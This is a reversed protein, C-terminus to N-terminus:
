SGSPIAEFPSSIISCESIASSTQALNTGNLQDLAKVAQKKHNCSLHSYRLTMEINKHGLLEKVTLLDVGSMVLQSAFTHRLEHFRFDNIGAKTLATHFSKKIDVFPKGKFSSFVYPSEPNRKIRILIGRVTENFPIERKENNKTRLLHILGNNWDIDHWKLNFIEGKRM